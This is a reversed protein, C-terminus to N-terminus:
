LGNLNNFPSMPSAPSPSGLRSRDKKLMNQGGNLSYSLHEAYSIDDEQDNFSNSSDVRSRRYKYEDLLVSNNDDYKQFQDVNIQSDSDHDRITSPQMLGKLNVDSSEGGDGRSTM